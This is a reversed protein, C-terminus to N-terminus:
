PLAVISKQNPADFVPSFTTGSNETKRVGGNRTAVYFTHQHARAPTEPVAIDSIWAGARFPGMNRFTFDDLLAPTFRQQAATAVPCALALLVTLSAARLRTMPLETSDPPAATAIPCALALLVTLSAARLRTM